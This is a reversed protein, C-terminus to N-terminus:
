RKRGIRPIKLDPLTADLVHLILLLEYDGLIRQGSEIQAYSSPPVDWGLVGLRAVVDVAKLGRAKRMARLQVGFVNKRKGGPSIRGSMVISYVSLRSM